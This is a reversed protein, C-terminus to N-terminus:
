STLDFEIRLNTQGITIIDGFSLAVAEDVVVGNLQTGNRSELDELWWRNERLTVLAHSNSTFDDSIVVTNAPSRGISTVPLLPYAIAPEASDIDNSIVFLAGRKSQSESTLTTVLQIDKYIFWGIAGIFCLLIIASLIRLILLVVAPSM